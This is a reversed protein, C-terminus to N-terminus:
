PTMGGSNLFMNWSRKSAIRDRTSSANPGQSVNGSGAAIPRFTSTQRWTVRRRDPAAEAVAAPWVPAPTIADFTAKIM